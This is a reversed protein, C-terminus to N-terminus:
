SSQHRARAALELAACTLKDIDLHNRLLQLLRVEEASVSLDAAAIEAALVYATQQLNEPLAAAFGLITELGEEEQLIDRCTKAANVLQDSNYGDFIPLTKVVNGIRLMETDEMNRDVASIAVMVFVLTDQVSIANM